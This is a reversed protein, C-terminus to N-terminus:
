QGRSKRTVLKILGLETMLKKMTNLEGEIGNLKGKLEANKKLLAKEETDINAEELKKKDRYRRAAEVNQLKKREKRDKITRIKSIRGNSSTSTNNKKREQLKRGPKKKVTTNPVKFQFHRTTVETQPVWESDDGSSDESDDGSIDDDTENLSCSNSLVSSSSDVLNSPTSVSVAQVEDANSPTIVIIVNRGDDTIIESVNSVDFSPTSSSYGTDNQISVTQQELQKIEEGTFNGRILQDLLDEAAATEDENMTSNALPCEMVDMSHLTQQQEMSLLEDVLNRVEEDEEMNEDVFQDLFEQIEEIVEQTEQVENKGNEPFSKDNQIQQETEMVTSEMWTQAQQQGHNFERKNEVVTFPTGNSSTKIAMSTLVKNKDDEMKFALSQGTIDSPKASLYFDAMSDEMLDKNLGNNHQDNYNWNQFNNFDQLCIESVQNDIEEEDGLLLLEPSIGLTLDSMESQFM